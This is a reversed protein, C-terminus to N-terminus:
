TRTVLSLLMRHIRVDDSLEPHFTLAMLNGQRVMVATDDLKALPICGGWTETIEPGRIFIAPFDEVLGDIELPVEFSEKQRGYSNRSVSMDMLGLLEIGAKELTGDGSKALLICGACTGLIPMGEAARRRIPEHMNFRHLLKGITTSEGGPIVLCDIAELDKSERVTVSEGELGEAEMARTLARLHEPVAGQLSLVGARIM